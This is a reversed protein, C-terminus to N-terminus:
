DRQCRMWNIIDTKIFRVSRGIKVHPIDNRKVLEYVMWQSIKLMYSVDKATIVEIDPRDNFRAGQSIIEGDENIEAPEQRVRISQNNATFSWNERKFM